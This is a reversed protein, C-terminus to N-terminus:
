EANQVDGVCVFLLNYYLRTHVLCDCSDTGSGYTVTYECLLKQTVVYLANKWARQTGLGNLLPLCDSSWHEPEVHM